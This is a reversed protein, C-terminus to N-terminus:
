LQNIEHKVEQWYNIRKEFLEESMDYVDDELIEDIAILACQKAQISCQIEETFEQCIIYYKDILEKAKRKANM